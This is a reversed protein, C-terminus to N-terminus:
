VLTQRDNAGRQFRPVRIGVGIARVQYVFDILPRAKGVGVRIGDLKVLPSFLKPPDYM